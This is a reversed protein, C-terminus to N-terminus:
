SRQPITASKIPKKLCKKNYFARKKSETKTARASYETEALIRGITEASVVKPRASINLVHGCKPFLRRLNNFFPVINDIKKQQFPKVV